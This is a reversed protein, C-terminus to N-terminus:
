SPTAHPPLLTGQEVAIVVQHCTEADFMGIHCKKRPIGLERALRGYAEVRTMPGLIWLPDFMAHALVRLRRLEANALRGLPTRSTQHCGVYADCPECLYFRKGALDKRHPYIRKGTVLESERSCYPCVPNSM